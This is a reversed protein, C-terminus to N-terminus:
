EGRYIGLGGGEAAASSKKSRSAAASLFQSLRSFQNIVGAAAQYIKALRMLREMRHNYSGHNSRRVNCATDTDYTASRLGRPRCDSQKPFCSRKECFGFILLFKFFM